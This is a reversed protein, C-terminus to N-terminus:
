ESSNRGVRDYNKQDIDVTIVNSYILRGHHNYKIRFPVKIPGNEAHDIEISLVNNKELKQSWFSNGCVPGPPRQFLQWVGDKRIETFFGTITADARRITATTDTHNVLYCQLYTNGNSPTTIVDKKSRLILILGPSKIKKVIPKPLENESIVKDNVWAQVWYYGTKFSCTFILLVFFFLAKKMNFTYSFLLDSAPRSWANVQINQKKEAM